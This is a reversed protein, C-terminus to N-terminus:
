KVALFTEGDVHMDEVWELTLYVETFITPIATIRPGKWIKDM